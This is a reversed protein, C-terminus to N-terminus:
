SAHVEPSSAGRTICAILLMSKSTSALNSECGDPCYAMFPITTSAVSTRTSVTTDESVATDEEPPGALAVAVAVLALVGTVM